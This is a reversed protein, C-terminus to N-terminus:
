AQLDDSKKQLDDCRRKLRDIASQQACNKTVLDTNQKHVKEREALKARLQGMDSRLNNNEKVKETMMNQQRKNSRELETVKRSKTRVAATKEKM